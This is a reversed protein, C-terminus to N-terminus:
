LGMRSWIDPKPPGKAVERDCKALMEDLRPGYGLEASEGPYHRKITDLRAKAAAYNESLYYQKAVGFLHCTLRKKCEVLQKAAKAAYETGPYNDIVTNFIKISTATETPDRDAASFQLFHSMGAQYLVYPANENSPHLRAFEKYSLAAEAYKQDGFYADGLKLGALTAYKSYPYKEKLKKFDEAAKDFNQEKLNAMGMALLQEANKNVTPSVKKSFIKSFNINELNVASCGGLGALAVLLLLLALPRFVPKSRGCIFAM